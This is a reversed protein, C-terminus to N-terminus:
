SGSEPHAFVQELNRRYTRSARLMEGTDLRIQADGHSGPLLESIRNVNVIASRHIRVFGSDALDRALRTMTQRYAHSKNATHLIVYSRDAEIWAIEKVQVWQTRGLSRIMFSSPRERPAEEPESEEQTEEDDPLSDNAGWWTFSVQCAIGIVWYLAWSIVFFQGIEGALTESFAPLTLPGTFGSFFAFRFLTLYLLYAM